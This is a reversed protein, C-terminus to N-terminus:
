LKYGINKLMIFYHLIMILCQQEVNNWFKKVLEM